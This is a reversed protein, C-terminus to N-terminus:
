KANPIDKIFDTFDRVEEFNRYVSAFRVYAINDTQKLTHMVMEGITSTPVEAEGITEIQRVLSSTIQEIKEQTIPRKQLAVTISNLLKDRNFPQRTRNNKIVQIDRLQIREFTTFRAGCNECSRRRRIAANEEAPRSDKVQTHEDHCFPCKM